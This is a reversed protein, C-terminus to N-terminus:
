GLVAGALASASAALLLGGAIWPLSGLADASAQSRGRFGVTMRIGTIILAGVGAVGAGWAFYGLVTNVFEAGPPAVAEPQEPVSVAPLAAAPPLASLIEILASM